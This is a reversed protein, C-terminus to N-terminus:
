ETPQAAGAVFGRFRLDCGAVDDNEFFGMYVYLMYVETASNLELQSPDVRLNFSLSEAPKVLRVTNILELHLAFSGGYVFAVEKREKNVVSETSLHSPNLIYFNDNSKNQISLRVRVPEDFSYVKIPTSISFLRNSSNVEIRVTEQPYASYRMPSLVLVVFLLYITNRYM